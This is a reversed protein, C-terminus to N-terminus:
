LPRNPRKEMYPRRTSITELLSAIRSAASAGRRRTSLSRIEFDPTLRAALQSRLQHRAFSNLTREDSSGLVHAFQPDPDGMIGTRVDSRRARGM